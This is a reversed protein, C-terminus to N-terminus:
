SDLWPLDGIEEADPPAAIIAAEICGQLERVNGPWQYACLRSKAESSVRTVKKRYDSALQRLFVEALSVIDELRDRLPPLTVTHQALFLYLDKRFRGAEALPFLDSQSSVVIRVDIPRGIAAGEPRVEREVIARFLKTQLRHSMHEIAELFLTGGRTLELLGQVRGSEGEAHGFLEKDLMEPSLSACSQSIMLRSARESLHHLARAIM